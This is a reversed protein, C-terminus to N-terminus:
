PEVVANGDLTVATQALLRGNASAGTNLTISTQSLIVGEMHATTGIEVAGFSQWFVNEPLAGGTLTVNTGSAQTIGGAIQFIWVDTASGNLTVDSSITVTNTWKYLGPPLTLGGIEGTALESFDPTPRGAADTYATQMDGIATTLNVPTPVAYDSAYINGTVQSSTSFAGGVPLSLSFGTIFSAAAPSLGLDGTIASAPVTSIASKALIVYNGATGLDVPAPGTGSAVNVTATGSIAGDTAQVTNAFTGTAGGATFLGNNDISGGGAVVSWVPTIAVTNNGSDKGVATFQQTANTQLVVPRPTIRITALAGATVTITATGSVAGSTAQVTNTYTGSITGANFLGAASITGGGAVVSWIPTIAVVNGGADTGVASFQKVDNIAMTGAPPSITVTTLAGVLVTASATGSIAGSTAKVTNAFTGTTTGATFMGSANITGGGAVVSWTPTIAVVNGAADKGVAAFQQTGNIALDGAAGTVAITALSGVTVTVSATGSITGSTAKVTGTFVGPVTGATFMGTANITGGGAEITWTPTVTVVNGDLDTGVAVFQQTANIGLTANPTVALSALASTDTPWGGCAWSLAGAAAVLLGAVLGSRSPARPSHTTVSMKM